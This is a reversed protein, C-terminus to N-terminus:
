NLGFSKKWAENCQVGDSGELTGMTIGHQLGIYAIQRQSFQNSKRFRQMMPRYVLGVFDLNCSVAAASRVANEYVQLSVAGSLPYAKFENLTAPACKKQTAPNCIARQINQLTLKEIQKQFSSGGQAVVMSGFFTLMLLSARFVM